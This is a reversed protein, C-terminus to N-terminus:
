DCLQFKLVIIVLKQWLGLKPNVVLVLSQSPALWFHLDSTVNWAGLLTPFHSHIFGWMGMRVGVKLTPTEISEQIKLSCNYPNFGM